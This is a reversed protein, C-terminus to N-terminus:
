RGELYYGRVLRSFQDRNLTTSEFSYPIYGGDLPKIIPKHRYLTGCDMKTVRRSEGNVKIM